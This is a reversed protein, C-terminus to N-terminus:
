QKECESWEAAYYVRSRVRARTPRRPRRERERKNVRCADKGDERVPAGRDDVEHTPASRRSSRRHRRSRSRPRHRARPLPAGRARTPRLDPLPPPSSPATTSSRASSAAPGLPLVARRRLRSRVERVGQLVLAVACCVVLLAIPGGFNIIDMRRTAMTSRHTERRCGPRDRAIDLDTSYFDSEYDTYVRRGQQGENRHRAMYYSLLNAVQSTAALATPVTYVLEVATLNLDCMMM